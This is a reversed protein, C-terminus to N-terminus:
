FLFGLHFIVNLLYNLYHCVRVMEELLDKWNQIQLLVQGLQDTHCTLDCIPAHSIHLM